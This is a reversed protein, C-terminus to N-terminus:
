ASGLSYTAFPHIPPKSGKRDKNLQTGACRLEGSVCHLKGDEGRTFDSIAASPFSTM